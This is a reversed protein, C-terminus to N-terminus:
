FKFRTMLQIRHNFVWHLNDTALGNLGVCTYLIKGDSSTKKVYDGYQAGTLQYELALTFFKGINWSLTPAVRFASNLNPYASKCLYNGTDIDKDKENDHATVAAYPLGEGISLLPDLTGLCKAYGLFLSGKLTKGYSLSLWSSSTLTPIYERSGDENIAGLGYGGFLNMHEGAQALVSKAKLTFLNCEYQLYGLLTFTTISEDLLTSGSKVRPRISLMDAGLRATFGNHSFNLGAYFEPIMSYKQYNASAGEPGASTYQVQWIGATTLTLTESLKWSANVQPSRSFPGFPVATELAICDPLDAALPHWAQGMRLKHGKPSLIDMYAQRLRLTATGTVGSLGSYFDTEIKASFKFGKYEYGKVDLGLRSTLTAWKMTPIANLDEGAGNLNRDLPLYNYLEATGSKSLHSDYTFYNRVFGYPKIEQAFASASFWALAGVFLIKKFNM